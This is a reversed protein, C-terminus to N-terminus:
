RNSAERDWDVEGILVVAKRRTGAVRERDNPGTVDVGGVQKLVFEPYKGFTCFKELANFFCSHDVKM